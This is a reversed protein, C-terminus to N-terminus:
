FLPYLLPGAGTGALLLLGGVLLLVLLPPLLWWKGSARLYAWTDAPSGGEGLSPSVPKWYSLADPEWTRCMPDRGVVRYALGLPVFFALYVAGLVVPTTVAGIAEGLRNWAAVLQGLWPVPPQPATAPALVQSPQEERVVMSRGMVLVDMETSAFCRWGDVPSEVMPEGRLNFSTNVLAPCGTLARFATLLTHFRGHRNGDVTQVRATGDVHTAAVLPSDLGMRRHAPDFADGPPATTAGRVAVVATMHPLDTDEDMVCLEAAHERLIAPAFPRFPERHKVALNLRDAMDPRRPDALISRHGLARPGYESRGQLWGVVRGKALHEATAEALAQDDEFQQVQVGLDDLCAAVQADTYEPGLFSGQQFPQPGSPPPQELEQHWLTLAAGLAGGADGAAPQVWVREFPGERLIRGVAVSNLAVGGALCLNARGTRRHAQEALALMVEETVLQISAALDADERRLPQEPARPSFGLLGELRRGYMSLQHPYTFYRMNLRYSGDAKQDILESRIRGAYTPEGYPALGMLKYEGGDVEFGVFGTCASYLLGLSHPFDIRDLLALGDSTGEGITTTAWEGVGDCTLVAADGFPSPYFASAAHAMHHPVFSIPVDLGPLSRRITRRVMLNDQLWRPMARRFSAFGRPAYSVYTELLRDFHLAPQEYFCVRELQALDIGAFELCRRIAHVPFGADHKTRSFREEHMAAIIQGDGLLAAASDHYFASIGLVYRM